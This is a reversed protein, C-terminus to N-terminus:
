ISQFYDCCNSYILLELKYLNLGQESKDLVLNNRFKYLHDDTFQIFKKKLEKDLKKGLVCKIKNLYSVMRNNRGVYKKYKDNNLMKERLKILEYIYLLQIHNM